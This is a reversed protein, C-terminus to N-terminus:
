FTIKLGIQMVRQSGSGILPNGAAFDPTLLSTGFVAGPGPQNNTNVFSSAGSPNAPIPHNFINFVEWRAQVGYHEKITFNKFISFDVDSFGSDRLINRGMDGFTGLAPPTIFSNGNASIYCGGIDLPTGVAGSSASHTLCGNVQAATAPTSIGGYISTVTCSVNGPAFPLLPTGAATPQNVTCDPISNKSSFFDASNGFINWRDTKQLTGSFNDSPDYTQWPQATAYTGIVNVQWGELMQGYGKKGPLDYTATVTLRNRVDFDSSGYEGAAPNQSNQPNLGFRNLSGSDLGHGYTYGATFALGHSMRKTLSVQLSNYNSYSRNTINYIYGLYPFKTYFPRAEQM